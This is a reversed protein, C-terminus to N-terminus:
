MSTLTDLTNSGEKNRMKIKNRKQPQFDRM